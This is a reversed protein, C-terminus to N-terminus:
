KGISSGNWGYMPVTEFVRPGDYSVQTTFNMSGDFQIYSVEQSLM